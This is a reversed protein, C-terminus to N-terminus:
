RWRTQLAHLGAGRQHGGDGFDEEGGDSAVEGDREGGATVGLEDEVGDEEGVGAVIGGREEGADREERWVGFEEAGYREGFTIVCISVSM